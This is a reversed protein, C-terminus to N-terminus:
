AQKPGQPFPKSIFFINATRIKPRSVITPQASRRFLAEVPPAAAVPWAVPAFASDISRRFSEAFAAFPSEALGEPAFEIREGLAMDM